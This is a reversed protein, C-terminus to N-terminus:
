NHNRLSVEFSRWTGAYVLQVPQCFLLRAPLAKVDVTFKASLFSLKASTM